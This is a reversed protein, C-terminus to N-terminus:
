EWREGRNRKKEGTSRKEDMRRRQSGRSPQTPKRQIVPRLSELVLSRLLDRCAQLNRNQERHTQCTIKLCGEDTIRSAAIVKLRIMTTPYLVQTANLDWSLTAKSNVKNVNQGGPGSSRAFAAQLESAPITLHANIPLDDM